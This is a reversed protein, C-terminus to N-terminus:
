SSRRAASGRSRRTSTPRASRPPPVPASSSRTRGTADDLFIFAAGTARDADEIVVPRIGAGEWLSLAMDAFADRGLRTLMHVEAGARAAAVAQNSGKGGPGLAFSRGLLTEGMRPLRDARFAADAVFIGLIVVPGSM